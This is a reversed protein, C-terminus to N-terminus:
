EKLGEARMAKSVLDDNVFDDGQQFPILCIGTINVARLAEAVKENVMWLFLPAALLFFDWEIDEKIYLAVSGIGKRDRQDEFNKARFDEYVYEFGNEKIVMEKIGRFVSRDYDVIDFQGNQMLMYYPHSNNKRDIVYTPFVSYKPTHFPTLIELLKQSILLFASTFSGGHKILDTLRARYEMKFNPVQIDEPITEYLYKTIDDRYPVENSYVGHAQILASGMVRSSMSHRLIYYKM